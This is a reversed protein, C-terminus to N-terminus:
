VQLEGFIRLEVLDSNTADRGMVRHILTLLLFVRYGVSRMYLMRGTWLRAAAAEYM